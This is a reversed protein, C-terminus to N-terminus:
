CSAKKHATVAVMGFEMTDLSADLGEAELMRLVSAPPVQVRACVCTCVYARLSLPVYDLFCEFIWLTPAVAHPFCTRLKAWRAEGAVGRGRWVCWV